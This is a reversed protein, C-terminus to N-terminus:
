APYKQGAPDDVAVAVMQGAPWNLRAAAELQVFQGAPVKPDVWPRVAFVHVPGQGAPYMQGAPVAFAVDDMQGAPCNLAEPEEVQLGQVAPRNPLGPAVEAEQLPGQSAPLYPREPWLVEWHVPGHV